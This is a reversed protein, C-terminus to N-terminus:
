LTTFFAIIERFKASPWFALSTKANYGQSIADYEKAYKNARYQHYGDTIIVLDTSLDNEEAIKISFQLNQETNKAKSEEIIRDKSIGEEQLYRSMATSEPMIENTGQGGTVICKANPYEKMFDVTADLRNRLSLSPKEGNIKAGLVVVTQGEYTGDFKEYGFATIASVILVVSVGIATIFWVAKDIKKRTRKSITRAVTEKADHIEDFRELKEKKIGFIMPMRLSSKENQLTCKAKDVKKQYEEDMEEEDPLEEIPYKISLLCYFALCITIFMPIVMGMNIVGMLLPLACWFFIVLSLLTVIWYLFKKGKSM